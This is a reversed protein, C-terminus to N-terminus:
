HRTDVLLEYMSLCVEQSIVALILSLYGRWFIESNIIDSIYAHQRRM